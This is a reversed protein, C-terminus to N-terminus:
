KILVVIRKHSLQSRTNNLMPLCHDLLLTRAIQSQQVTPWNSIANM